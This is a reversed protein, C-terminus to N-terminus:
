ITATSFILESIRLLIEANGFLKYILAFLLPLFFTRRFYYDDNLYDLGLGIRKAMNLYSGEDYWIATNINYYKLRLYFSFLLIAFFIYLYYKDFFDAKKGEKQDNEM